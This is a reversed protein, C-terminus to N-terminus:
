IKAKPFIATFESGRGLTSVVAITGNFDKEVISKTSALGLGLGRGTEKKTSFFPEFIKLLNDAAIGQGEDRVLLRIQEATEELLILVEKEPNQNESAEIANALLNSAIQGFKIPDGYLSINNSAQFNLRVKARRAKYDLIQMIQKIEENLSFQKPQNERALQKKISAILDEMKRAATIAQSLFSKASLIRNESETKIQELNLSVATLPNVLDHFIGSSLRGFEALRYLQNIKDAEMERIQKTREIVKLELSDREAKLDKESQRARTLAKKTESCFLWAVAAIVSFLFAYSITDGMDNQGSRWYSNAPAQGSLQLHTLEILFIILILTSILAARTGLLAGSLTIVLVALLIAAPLDAGWAIFSYFMPLSYTIVLLISAIKGHGRKSLWFLFIFFILILLTYIFPLGKAGHNIFIDIFRILNLALFCFISIALLINLVFERGRQDEDPNKSQILRAIFQAISKKATM